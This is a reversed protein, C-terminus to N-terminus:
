AEAEIKQSINFDDIQDRLELAKEIYHEYDSIFDNWKVPKIYSHDGGTHHYGGCDSCSTKNPSSRNFMNKRIIYFYTGTNWQTVGCSRSEVAHSYDGDEDPLVVAIMGNPKSYIKSGDKLKRSKDRLSYKVEWPIWQESESIAIDKMGKSILVITVSSDFIKRGLKTLITSDKFNELSADDTEGKNIHDSEKIIDQFLSVYSRATIVGNSNKYEDALAEVLSDGYKYSVFIKAM